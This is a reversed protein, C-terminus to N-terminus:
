RNPVASDLLEALQGVERDLRTAADALDIRTPRGDTREEIAEGLSAAARRADALKDTFAFSWAGIHVWRSRAQGLQDLQDLQVNFSALWVRPEALLFCWDEAPGYRTVASLVRGRLAAVKTQLVQVTQRADALTALDIDAGAGLGRPMLVAVPPTPGPQDAGQAAPEPQDNGQGAAATAAAPFEPSATDKRRAQAYPAYWVAFLTPVITSLSTVALTLGASAQLHDVLRSLAACFALILAWGIWVLQPHRAQRRTQRQRADWALVCLGLLGGVGFIAWTGATLWLPPPASHGPKLHGSALVAFGTRYRM